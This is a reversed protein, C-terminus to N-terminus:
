FALALLNGGIGPEDPLGSLMPRCNLSTAIVDGSLVM